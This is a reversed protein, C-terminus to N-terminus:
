RRGEPEATARSGSTAVAARYRPDDRLSKLTPSREFNDRPYGRKLAERLWRLAADRDALVEYVLVARQMLEVDQPAQGLAEAALERAERAEGLNALCDALDMTVVADRPNVARAARALEAAKRYAAAAKDREGPAWYYASALSRWVRYERDNFALAKEFARAAESFSGRRFEIGALNNAAAETPRITLSRKLEVIAEEDRGMRSLVGGLNYRARENDPVLEVARRFAQEAEQYRGRRYFFGGFSSHVGWYDPKLAIAKRYEAEAEAPKGQAFAAQALGRRAESSAPDLALARQFDSSAREAEGTGVHLLGLTVHVPALLDNLSVARECAKRASDVYAREKTLDYLRWHAEGLGAYALAFSPDRQLADQFASTARELSEREQYRQLHGRGQLYADYATAVKTGGAQIVRAAEPNLELELMEAVRRVVGDQILALDAITTDFTVSRLQRLSVADVLNATLKLADGTRQISGSIALTAGFARRAASPSLVASQRVESTPVVWLAGQFRELQTLRSTLTELLGNSFAQAAADGGTNSFPLVAIHKQAPLPAPRLLAGVVATLALAAAVVTRRLWSRRGVPMPPFSRPGSSVEELRDHVNRLERALDVTSAYRDEPNKKLCREVIWRFPPPTEPNLNQIPEPEAEIIASLTQVPSDKEFARRGTAMEYLITGCSFQDSRFDISRGKAQEPSMYGVTGLLVGPRTAPETPADSALLPDLEHLKALGFDLIKLFGDRTVMLNEPKLDRHVIGISHAKALGEAAQAAIALARKTLLPRGLMSRLTHGEILEMAIYQIGDSHGIDFITVINPHNLASAARAEQEFRQLRDADERVDEPLIKLAVERGLSLDRARYVEGMGGAGLKTLIEYRGLKKGIM